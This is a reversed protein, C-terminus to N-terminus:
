FQTNRVAVVHVEQKSWVTVVIPADPTWKPFDFALRAGLHQEALQWRKMITISQGAVFFGGDEVSGTFELEIRPREVDVDTQIIVQLAYPSEPRDSAVRRETFRLHQVVPPQSPITSKTPPQIVSGKRLATIADVVRSFGEDMHALMNQVDTKTAETLSATTLTRVQTEFANKDRIIRYFGSFGVVAIFLAVAWKRWKSKELDAVRSPVLALCLAVLTLLLTSMDGWHEWIWLAKEIFWRLM